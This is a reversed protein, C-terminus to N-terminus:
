EDTPKHYTNNKLIETIEDYEYTYRAEEPTFFVDLIKKRKGMKDDLWCFINNLYDNKYAVECILPRGERDLFNFEQTAIRSPCLAKRAGFLPARKLGINKHFNTVNNIPSITLM